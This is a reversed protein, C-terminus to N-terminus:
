LARGTAPWLHPREELDREFKDLDISGGRELLRQVHSVASTRTRRDSRALAAAAGVVRLLDLGASALRQEAAHAADVAVRVEAAIGAVSAPTTEPKKTEPKTEPKKTPTTPPM